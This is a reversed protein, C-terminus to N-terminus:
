VTQVVSNISFVEKGQPLRSNQYMGPLPYRCSQSGVSIRFEWAVPLVERTHSMECHQWLKNSSFDLAALRIGNVPSKQFSTGPKRWVSDMHRKGKNNQKTDKGQLLDYSITCSVHQTRHIRRALWEFNTSDQPSGVCSKVCWRKVQDWFSFFGSLCEVM